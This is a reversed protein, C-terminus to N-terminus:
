EYRALMSSMRAHFTSVSPDCAKLIEDVSAKDHFIDDIIQRQACLQGKPLPHMDEYQRLLAGVQQEAEYSIGSIEMNSLDELLRDLLHSQIYHTAVGAYKLDVGQLSGADEKYNRHHSDLM